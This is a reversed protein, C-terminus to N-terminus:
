FLGSLGINIRGQFQARSLGVEFHFYFLTFILTLLSWIKFRGSVGLEFNVRYGWHVGRSLLIILLVILM